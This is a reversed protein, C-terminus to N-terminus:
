GLGAIGLYWAWLAPGTLATIVAGAALSPGFPISTESLRAGRAASLAVAVGILNGILLAILIYPGLFLGMAGLLKIDGMGLGQKGRLAGYVAAIAGSTGAGIVAGLLAVLLPNSLLGSSSVGVLPALPTGLVQSIIACAAGIGALIAVLVNPLRMHDLDIASLVLLLWFFIAAVLAQPPSSFALAAGSFLVGSALEVLPYRAPIAADCTRCHGRLVLWSALPINDYWALPTECHPCHSGPRVISEGRPVRWIVVNAFSGFLLGLLGAFLVLFWQAMAADGPKIM